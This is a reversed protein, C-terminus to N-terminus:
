FALADFKSHLEVTLDGDFNALSQKTERLVYDIIM